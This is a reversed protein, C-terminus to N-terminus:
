YNVYINKKYLIEYIKSYNIGDGLDEHILEKLAPGYVGLM